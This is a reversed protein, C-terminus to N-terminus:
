ILNLASITVRVPNVYKLHNYLGRSLKIFSKIIRNHKTTATNHQKYIQFLFSSSIKKYSIQISWHQLWIINDALICVQIAM